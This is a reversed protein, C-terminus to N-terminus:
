DLQPEQREKVSRIWELLTPVLACFAITVALWALGLLWGSLVDSAWHVGLYVRSFGILMGLALAGACVVIRVGRGPLPKVVIWALAGYFAIAVASHGSPFSAGSASALRDIPAPRGRDVLVKIAGVLVATGGAALVLGFALLRQRRWLLLVVVVLAVPVIVTAGGLHTIARFSDTLAPTRHQVLFRQVVPDAGIIGDGEMVDELAAAFGLGAAAFVIAASLIVLVVIGPVGARHALDILWRGAATRRLRLTWRHETM